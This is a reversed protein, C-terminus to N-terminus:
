RNAKYYDPDHHHAEMENSRHLEDHWVRLNALTGEGDGVQHHFLHTHALLSGPDAFVAPVLWIGDTGERAVEKGGLMVQTMAKAMEMERGPSMVLEVKGTPAGTFPPRGKRVLMFEPGSRSSVTWDAGDKGKVVDGVLVSDWDILM